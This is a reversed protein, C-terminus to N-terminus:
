LIQSLDADHSHKRVLEAWLEQHREEPLSDRLVNWLHGRFAPVPPPLSSLNGAAQQLASRTESKTAYSAFMRVVDIQPCPSAPSAAAQERREQLDLFLDEIQSMVVNPHFTECARQRAAAGM